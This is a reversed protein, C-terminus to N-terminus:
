WQLTKADFVPGTVVWLAGAEPAVIDAEAEELRQWVLQNLRPTQPAVNSMLFAAHRGKAGFLKSILYNPALHGREYGSGRYDESQVQARTRTDPEFEERFLNVHRGRVSEARFAVWLAERQFESYGIRFGPNQLVEVGPQLKPSVLKPDGAFVSRDAAAASVVTLGALVLIAFLRNM